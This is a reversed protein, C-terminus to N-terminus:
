SKLYAKNSNVWKFAHKTIKLFPRLVKYSYLIGYLYTILIYLARKDRALPNILTLIQLRNVYENFITQTDKADSEKIITEIYEIYSENYDPANITKNEQNVSVKSFRDVYVILGLLNEDLGEVIERYCSIDRLYIRKRFALAELLPYGFGEAFSPFVIFECESYLSDMEDNSLGGSSILSVDVRETSEFGGGLIIYQLGKIRPLEGLAVAVGKHTFKNGIVLAYKGRSQDGSSLNLRSPIARPLLNASYNKGLAHFRLKFQERSHNSIFSIHSFVKDLCSWLGYIQPIEMYIEPCDLAITDLFVNISIISHSPINVLDGHKFPQGIRLGFFYPGILYDVVKIQPVDDLKHFSIAENNALVSVQYGSSVLARISEVILKNTGNYYPGLNSADIIIENRGRKLAVLINQYAKTSCEQSYRALLNFYYPYKRLLLQHNKAKLEDRGENLGFSKGELHGIFAHNAIANRFGHAAVRLCFDNEEEYGPNFEESYGPFAKIVASRIAISFGNTVPAYSIQPVYNKSMKFIDVIAEFDDQSEIYVQESFLNCITAHNSRPSICGIMPDLEFCKILEEFAGAYPMTDSNLIVLNADFDNAILFGKNATKLFGLNEDNEIYEFKALACQQKLYDGGSSEPCDNIICIKKFLGYESPFESFYKVFNDIFIENKYFPILLINNM